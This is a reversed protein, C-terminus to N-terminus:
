DMGSNNVPLTITAVDLCFGSKAGYSVLSTGIFCVTILPPKDSKMQEDVSSVSWVPELNVISM